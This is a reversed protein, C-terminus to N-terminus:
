RSNRAQFVGAETVIWRMPRDHAQPHVSAVRGLEFGVGVAVAPLSALTRDFYGGGYGLRYGLADFANLPVLVIDPTVADGDPPHAIGHRDAALAMGPWWPRFVLPQGRGVVVPLAVTRAADAHRWRGMLRRLDPEGRFPWCFAVVAPALTELLGALQAEVRANLAAHATATLAERAGIAM